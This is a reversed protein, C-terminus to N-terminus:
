NLTYDIKLNSCYKENEVTYDENEKEMKEIEKMVNDINQEFKEEISVRDNEYEKAV